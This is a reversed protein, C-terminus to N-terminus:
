HNMCNLSHMYLLIYNESSIAERGAAWAAAGSGRLIQKIYICYQSSRYRAHTMSNRRCLLTQLSCSRFFFLHSLVLVYGDVLGKTFLLNLLHEQLGFFPLVREGSVAWRKMTREDEWESPTLDLHALTSTNRFSPDKRVFGVGEYPKSVTCKLHPLREM